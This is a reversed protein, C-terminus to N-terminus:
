RITGKKLSNFNSILLDEQRDTPNTRQGITVDYHNLAREFCPGSKGM